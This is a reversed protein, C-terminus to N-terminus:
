PAQNLRHLEDVINVSKPRLAEQHTGWHHGCFLLQSGGALEALVYAQAGCRDCRDTSALTASSLTQTSSAPMDYNLCSFLTSPSFASRPEGIAFDSVAYEKVHTM